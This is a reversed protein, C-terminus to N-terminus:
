CLLQCPEHFNVTKSMSRFHSARALHIFQYNNQMGNEVRRGGNCIQNKDRRREDVM